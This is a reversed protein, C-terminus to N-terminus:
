SFQRGDTALDTTDTGLDRELESVRAELTAKERAAVLAADRATTELSTTATKSREAAEEASTAAARLKKVKAETLALRSTLSDGEIAAAAAATQVATARDEASQRTDEFSTQASAESAVAAAAEVRAVVLQM